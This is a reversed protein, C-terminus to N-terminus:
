NLYEYINEGEEYFNGNIELDRAVGQYDIHNSILSPLNDINYIEQILNYAMDEMTSNEYIIVNDINNIAEEISDAFGYDLLFKVSKLEYEELEELQQLDENIKFINSFEEVKFFSLEEWEYDTIFYEEGEQLVENLESQLEEHSIALTIWKGLFKGNNYAALDTLYIKLM